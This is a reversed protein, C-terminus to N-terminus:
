RYIISLGLRYGVRTQAALLKKKKKVYLHLGYIARKSQKDCICGCASVCVKVCVFVCMSM